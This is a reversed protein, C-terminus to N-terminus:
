QTLMIEEHYKKEEELKKQQETNISKIAYYVYAAATGWYIIAFIAQSLSYNLTIIKYILKIIWPLTIAYVSINFLHRYTLKAKKASNIILAILSLAIISWLKYFALWFIYFLVYFTIIYKKIILGLFPLAAVIYDKNISQLGFFNMFNQYKVRSIEGFMVSTFTDRGMIFTMKTDKYQKLDTENNTDVIFTNEGINLLYPQKVDVSLQGNQLNFKPLSEVFSVTHKKMFSDAQYIKLWAGIIYVLLSLILFYLLTKKLPQDYIKNYYKFDVISKIIGM